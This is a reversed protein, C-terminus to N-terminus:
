KRQQEIMEQRHQELAALHKTLDAAIGRCHERVIAADRSGTYDHSQLMSAKRDFNKVMANFKEIQEKVLQIQRDLDQVTVHSEPLQESEAVPVAGSCALTMAVMMGISILKM